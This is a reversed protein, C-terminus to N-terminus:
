ALLAVLGTEISAARQVVVEADLRWLTRVLYALLVLRRLRRRGIRPHPQAVIDVGDVSLPLRAGPPEDVVIAVRRGRAALGRALLLIQTEAGGPPPGDTAGLRAALWRSYFAVDYRPVTM